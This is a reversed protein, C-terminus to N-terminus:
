QSRIRASRERTKFFAAEEFNAVEQEWIKDIEPDNELTRILARNVM